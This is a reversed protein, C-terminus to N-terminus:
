PDKATLPEEWLKVWHGRLYVKAQLREFVKFLGYLTRDFFIFDEEVTELGPVEALDKILNLGSNTYNSNERFDFYDEKLPKSLWQGFNKVVAQYDFDSSVKITMGIDEYAKVIMDFDNRYFSYLLKPLNETFRPSLKKVCGFDILAIQGDVKFLYNGPNPDAHLRGLELTSYVFTDYILQAARDRAEQTPNTLLWDDLHQGDLMQTTLVRTSSYSHFVAPIQVGEIRLNEKFWLTNALELRYDIEEELRAGIEDITTDIIANTPQHQKPLLKIASNAVTRLLKLDSQISVEIGPYQVKVAVTTGCDLEARHVQGLSAAAIAEPEFRAFFTEPPQGFERVIVKKVLVRNLPPIQHYSKSLEDVLSQPLLDTEMGLMQALKAATGRLQVIAKFLMAAAQDEQKDKALQQAEKNLFPRKAKTTLRGVGLKVATSGVVSARSLQSSPVKSM